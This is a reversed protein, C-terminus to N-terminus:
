KFHPVPWTGHHSKHVTLIHYLQLEVNDYIYIKQVSLVHYLELKVTDYIKHVSFM